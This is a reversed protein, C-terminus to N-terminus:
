GANTRVQPDRAWALIERPYMCWCLVVATQGIVVFAQPRWDKSADLVLAVYSVFDVACFAILLATAISPRREWLMVILLGLGVALDVIARATFLWEHKLEPNRVLPVFYALAALGALMGLTMGYLTVSLHRRITVGLNEIGMLALLLIDAPETWMWAVGYYRKPLARNLDDLALSRAIEYVVFWFFFPLERRMGLQAMSGLVFAGLALNLGWGALLMQKVATM